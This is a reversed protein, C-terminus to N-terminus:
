RRKVPRIYKLFRAPDHYFYFIRGETLDLEYETQAYDFQKMAEEIKLEVDCNQDTYDFPGHEFVIYEGEPIDILLMQPPIAGAYDM